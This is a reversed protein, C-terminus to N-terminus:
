SGTSNLVDAVHEDYAAAAKKPDDGAAISSFFQENYRETELTAWGPVAPLARNFKSAEGSAQLFPVVGSSPMFAPTIPLQNQEAVLVSQIKKGTIIRLWDKAAEPNKSAASIGITSGSVIVPLPKGKEYGPMPMFGLQDKLAPNKEVVAAPEWGRASIIAAGGDAFVQAQDPNNTNVGVSSPTSCSNQFSRWAALGEQARPTSLAGQWTDGKKVALDGGKGFVFPAGSFWYQGPMYFGSFNPTSGFTQALKACVQTLEDLDQPPQTIGAKAFMDKNYMVVKTGGYMPVAYLKGDFASPEALGALWTGSDEFSAKDATLDLLGGSYTQLPTQTNGMEVIDPGNGSALATTLKTTINDWQQVQVTVKVNPHKEHFMENITDVVNTEGPGGAMLWVTLPADSSTTPAGSGGSCGATILATAALAAVLTPRVPFKM